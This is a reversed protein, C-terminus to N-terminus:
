AVRHQSHNSQTLNHWTVVSPNGNTIEHFGVYHQPHLYGKNGDAYRFFGARDEKSDIVLAVHWPQPFFHTHLWVDYSSLFVSLGPHTHYWGVIQSDPYEDEQRNLLDALTDSTFTLHVASHDV